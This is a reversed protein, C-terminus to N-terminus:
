RQLSSEKAARIRKEGATTGLTAYDSDTQGACVAVFGPVTNDMGDSKSRYGDIVPAERSKAHALTRAWGCPNSTLMFQFAHELLFSDGLCPTDAKGGHQQLKVLIRRKPRPESCEEADFHM